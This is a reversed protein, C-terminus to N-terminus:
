VQPSKETCRPDLLKIKDALYDHGHETCFGYVYSLERMNPSWTILDEILSTHVDYDIMGVCTTIIEWLMAEREEKEADPLNGKKIIEKEANYYLILYPESSIAEVSGYKLKTSTFKKAIIYDVIKTEYQFPNEFDIIKIPPIEMLLKLNGANAASNSLSLISPKFKKYAKGAFEYSHAHGIGVMISRPHLNAIHTLKPLDGLKFYRVALADDRVDGDYFQDKVIISKYLSEKEIASVFDENGNIIANYWSLYISHRDIIKGSVNGSCMMTFLRVDSSENSFDEIMMQYQNQTKHSLYVRWFLSSHTITYFCRDLAHVSEIDKLSLCL